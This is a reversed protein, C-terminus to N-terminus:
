EWGLRWDEDVLEAPEAIFTENSLQEEHRWYEAALEASMGNEPEDETL